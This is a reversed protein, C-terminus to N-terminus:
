WLGRLTLLFKENVQIVEEFIVCVSVHCCSSFSGYQNMRQIELLEILLYTFLRNSKMKFPEFSGIFCILACLIFKLCGWISTLSPKFGVELLLLSLVLTYCLFSLCRCLCLLKILKPPSTSIFIFM